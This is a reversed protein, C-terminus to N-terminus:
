QVLTVRPLTSTPLTSLGAASCDAQTENLKVTGSILLTQAVMTFCNVGSTAKNITGSFSLNSNPMYILGTVDWNLANGSSTWDVGSTLNPDQYIAVG